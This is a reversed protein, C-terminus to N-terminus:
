CRPFRASTGFGFRKGTATLLLPRADAGARVLRTGGFSLRGVYFGKAPGKVKLTVGKGTFRARATAVNHTRYSLGRCGLVKGVTL